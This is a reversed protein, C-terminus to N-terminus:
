KGVKIRLYSVKEKICDTGNKSSIMASERLLRDICNHEFLNVGNGQLIDITDTKCMAAMAITNAGKYLPCKEHAYAGMDLLFYVTTDRGNLIAAILPLSLYRNPHENLSNGRFCTLGMEKMSILGSDFGYYACVADLNAYTEGRLLLSYRERRPWILKFDLTNHIPSTTSVLWKVFSANDHNKIYRIVNGRNLKYARSLTAEYAAKEKLENGM